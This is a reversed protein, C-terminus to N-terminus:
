MLIIVFLVFCSFCGAALLWMAVYLGFLVPVAANSCGTGFDLQFQTSTVIILAM